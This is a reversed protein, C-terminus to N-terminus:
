VPLYRFFFICADRTSKFESHTCKIGLLVKCSSEFIREWPLSCLLLFAIVPCTDIAPFFHSTIFTVDILSKGKWSMSISLTLARFFPSLHHHVRSRKLPALKFLRFLTLVKANQHRQLLYVGLSPSLSHPWM